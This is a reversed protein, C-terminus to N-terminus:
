AVAFSEGRMAIAQDSRCRPATWFSIAFENEKTRFLKLTRDHGAHGFDSAMVKSVSIVNSLVVGVDPCWALVRRGAASTGGAVGNM